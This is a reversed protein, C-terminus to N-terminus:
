ENAYDYLEKLEKESLMAVILLIMDAGAAKAAGIHEKSIIFDKCLVPVNVSESVRALDDLSGGFDVPECLVSIASAGHQQYIKAQKVVDVNKNIAGSSPSSKKIEAI